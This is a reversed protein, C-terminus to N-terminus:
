LYSGIVVGYCGTRKKRWKASLVRWPRKSKSQCFGSDKASKTFTNVERENKTGVPVNLTGRDKQFAKAFVLIKPV